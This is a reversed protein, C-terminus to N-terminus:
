QSQTFHARLASVLGANTYRSATVDVRLGLREATATTIPGISAITLPELADRADDGLITCLNEVTSSATFTVVDVERDRILRSLRAADEGIPPVSRYAAIVDVEGGAARLTDPLIQRAVAARPLLIRVGSVDGDHADTVVRAVEEGIHEEPVHDAIVGEASLAQATGPGIAV